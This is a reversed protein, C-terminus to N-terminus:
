EIIGNELVELRSMKASDAIFETGQVAAGESSLVAYRETITAVKLTVNGNEVRTGAIAKKDLMKGTQPNYTALVYDYNLLGARWYVIAVFPQKPDRKVLRMCAVYETMDDPATAEYKEIFDATEQATIPDNEKSFDLHTDETFTIPLEIEPFKALFQEFNSKM